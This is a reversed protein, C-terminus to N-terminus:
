GEEYVDWDDCAAQIEACADLWTRADGLVTYGTATIRCAGPDHDPGAYCGEVEVLVDGTSVMMGYDRIYRYLADLGSCVALGSVIAEDSMTWGDPRSADLITELSETASHIRYYSSM